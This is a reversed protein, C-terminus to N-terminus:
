PGAQDLIAVSLCETYTQSWILLVRADGLDDLKNFKSFQGAATTPSIAAGGFTRTTWNWASSTLPNDPVQLVRVTNESGGASSNVGHDSAIIKGSPIHYVVGTGSGYAGTGSVAKQRWTGVPDYPDFLILYGEQVGCVILRRDPCAVIWNVHGNGVSGLRVGYQTDVKSGMHKSWLSQSNANEGQNLVRFIRHSNADYTSGGGQSEMNGGKTPFADPWKVWPTNGPTVPLAGYQGDVMGRVDCSWPATQRSGHSFTGEAGMVWMRGGDRGGAWVTNNWGHYARIHHDSAYGTDNYETDSPDTAVTPLALLVAGPSNARLDVYYQDNNSGDTHGSTPPIHFRGKPDVIAPTWSTWKAGLDYTDVPRKNAPTQVDLFRKGAATGINIVTNSQQGALYTPVAYTSVKRPPIWNRSLLAQACLHSWGIGPLAAATEGTANMFANLALCNWGRPWPDGQGFAWVYNRKEWIKSYEPEGERQAWAEVWTDNNPNGPVTPSDGGGGDHGPRVHILLTVWQDAPWYWCNNLSVTSARDVGTQGILCTAAYDGGPQYSSGQPSGSGQPETLYSNDRNGFNTYMQYLSSPNSKVVLEQDPTRPQQTGVNGDGTILIMALKGDPQGNVFRGATMKLTLQLYFDWGPINDARFGSSGGPDRALGTNLYDPHCYYGDVWKGLQTRDAGGTVTWNRRTLQGNMAWDPNAAGRGNGSNLGGGNMPSFPRSWGGQCVGGPPVICELSGGSGIGSSANWRVKDPPTLPYKFNEVEAEDRFDHAWVTGAMTSRMLFDADDGSLNGGGSTGGSASGAPATATIAVGTGGAGAGGSAVGSAAVTTSTAGAGVAPVQTTQQVVLAAAYEVGQTDFPAVAFRYSTGFSLGTIPAGLANPDAIPSRPVDNVYVKFGALGVNGPDVTWSLNIQTTSIPTAVLTLIRPSKRAARWQRPIAM